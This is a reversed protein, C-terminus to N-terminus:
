WQQCTKERRTYERGLQPMGTFRRQQHRKLCHV